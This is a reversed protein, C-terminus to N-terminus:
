GRPTKPKETAPPQVTGNSGQNNKQNGNPDKAPAPNETGPKENVPKETVPNDKVPNPNPNPNPAPNPNPTPNPKSNSNTNSNPTPRANANANANANSNNANANTTANQNGNEIAQEVVKEIPSPERVEGANPQDGTLGVEGQASAEAAEFGDRLFGKPLSAVFEEANCEAKLDFNRFSWHLVTEADIRVDASHLEGDVDLWFITSRQGEQENANWRVRLGTLGPHEAHAPVFNVEDADGRRACFGSWAKGLFAFDDLETSANWDSGCGFARDNGHAVSWIGEATGFCSANVATANPAGEARATVHVEGYGPQAVSVNLNITALTRGAHFASTSLYEATAEFSVAAANAFREQLANWTQRARDESAAPHAAAAPQQAAALSLLLSLCIM